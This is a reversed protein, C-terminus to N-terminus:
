LAFPTKEKAKNKASHPCYLDECYLCECSNHLETCCMLYNCEDCCCEINNQTEGNGPCDKGNNGPILITGSIDIIRKRKILKNTIKSLM